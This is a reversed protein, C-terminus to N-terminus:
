RQDKLFLAHLLTEKIGPAPLIDLAPTFPLIVPIGGAKEVAHTYATPISTALMNFKNLDTHGVIGIIPKM